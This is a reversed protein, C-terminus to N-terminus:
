STKKGYGADVKILAVAMFTFVTCIMVWLFFHPYGLWAQLKGAIMTSVMMGLAMFGTCIAYHSTKYHGESFYMLYVMFATFGFGYGFQEIAVCTSIVFFNDPYFFSLYVYTIHPLSIAFAMPWLWFRLGNRAIALGGLIGGLLLFGVAVGGYLIGVQETTLGLGGVKAPDLMFLKGMATIQAEGFRYAMIFFLAAWIQKKKFYSVFAEGFQRAIYAPSTNESLEDSAPKPLLFKHYVFLSLFLATFIYFILSWSFAINGTTHEWYGALVVLGGQGSIMAVRYFTNRIGIYAAQNHPPLALMYFGDCAIDHTASSFAILFFFAFSAQFWFHTPISFAVGALGVGIILEMAVIWWRKTKIIDVFPSWFPKIVWPLNLWGTYLAIDENSLGLRKYMIGAVMMVAVYPLGEAFYLSPIWGWPSGQSKTEKM